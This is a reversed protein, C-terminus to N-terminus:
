LVLELDFAGAGGTISLDSPALPVGPAELPAAAASTEAGNAGVAAVRCDTWMGGDVRVDPAVRLEHHRRWSEHAVVGVLIEGVYVRYQTAGAVSRWWVLPRRELAVGAASVTEGAANEHVELAVPDPLGLVLEKEATAIAAPGFLLAGNAFVRVVAGADGSWSLKASAPGVPTILVDVIM